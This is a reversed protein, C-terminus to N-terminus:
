EIEAAKNLFRMAFAQNTPAPVSIPNKYFSLSPRVTPALAMVPIEGPHLCVGDQWAIKHPSQTPQAMMEVLWDVEIGERLYGANWWARELRVKPLEQRGRGEAPHPLRSQRLRAPSEKGGSGVVGDCANCNLAAESLQPPKGALVAAEVALQGRFRQPSGFRCAAAVPVHIVLCQSQGPEGQGGSERDSRGLAVGGEITESARLFQRRVVAQCLGQSCPTVALAGPLMKARGYALIPDKGTL